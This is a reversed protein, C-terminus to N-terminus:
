KECKTYLRKLWWTVFRTVFNRQLQSQSFELVALPQFHYYCQAEQDTKLQAQFESSIRICSLM